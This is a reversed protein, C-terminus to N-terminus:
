DAKKGRILSEPHRELYETLSRMAQAAGSVDRMAGRVEHQMPGESALTEHVDAMTKEAQGLLSSLQPALQRDVRDMLRSTGALARKMEGLLDDSAGQFTPLAAISGLDRVRAPPAGRVIDLGVYRQGTLLSATGVQARLGRAVLRDLFSRVDADLGSSVPTQGDVRMGALLRHDLSVTVVTRPKLTRQQFRVDVDTVEGVAQGMLEVAVGPVLGRQSGQFVLVYREGGAGSQRLALERSPWLDFERGDAAAPDAGTRPPTEFAIGGMLVSAMSATDLKIGQASVSLDIGSAHWFVSSATLHNHHPTEVFIEVLGTARTDLLVRAIQGVRYGRLYVPAGVDLSGINQARLRFFRGPREAVFPPAELGTYSDRAKTSRGPAFGLHAGGVLTDIGSVGGASVRPRVVWFRADEMLMAALERSLRAGVLVGTGDELLSVTEVVGVEVSKYKVLTKGAELGEATAFTINVLPGREALAQVGLWLASLAAALPVLWILLRRRSGGSPPRFAPVARPFETIHLHPDNM